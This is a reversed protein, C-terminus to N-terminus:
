ESPEREKVEVQEDERPLTELLSLLFLMKPDPRTSIALAYQSIALLLILLGALLIESVVLGAAM